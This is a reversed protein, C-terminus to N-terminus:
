AQAAVESINKELEQLVNVRSGEVDTQAVKVAKGTKKAEELLRERMKDIVREEKAISLEEAVKEEIVQLAIALTLVRGKRFRVERRMAHTTEEITRPAFGAMKQALANLKELLDRRIQIGRNLVHKSLYLKLIKMREPLAPLNIAIKSGMRNIVAPDLLNPFNTAIIIKIHKLSPKELMGLLTTVLKRQFATTSDRDRRAFPLDGEDFFLILPKESTESWRLLKEFEILAVNEKFKFFNSGKIIAFNMGSERALAKAYMTKGTGPPGYLLLGSLEEGLGVAHKTFHAERQLKRKTDADMIIESLKRIEGIPKSAAGFYTKRNTEDVLKPLTLKNRILKVVMRAGYIAIAAGAITGITKIPDELVSHGFEFTQEVINGWFQAKKKEIKLKEEKHKAIKILTDTFLKWQTPNIKLEALPEIKIGKDKLSNIVEKKFETPFASLAAALKTQGDVNDSVLQAMKALNSTTSVHSALLDHQSKTLANTAQQLTAQATAIQNKLSGMQKRVEETIPEKSQALKNLQQHLGKVQKQSQTFDNQYETSKSQLQIIKAQQVAITSALSTVQQKPTMGGDTARLYPTSIFVAGLLSFFLIKKFFFNTYNSM